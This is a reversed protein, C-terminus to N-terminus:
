CVTLHCYGYSFRASEPIMGLIRHGKQLRGSHYLEELMLFFSASAVNGVSPLNVFWKEVPISYGGKALAEMIKDRFFMSSLHPLFWDVSSVDLARRDAIEQLFDLGLETINEGLYRADQKISFISRSLWDQESFSAWGCLDGKDDREAGAYMCAKHQHAYSALEIWDIALSLGDARPSPELLVAGAGDSLMWRLFDKEFALIPKRELQAILEAEQEFYANRMWPSFRESAVCVANRKEGTLVSLWGYKMAQIGTCCSGAFSVTEANRGGLEGHVMVGHSPMIQEPSATGASILDIADPSLGALECLSRIALAAMGVNTHTPLGARDLAYYRQKIGNSKLILSRAISKKGNILGLYEEMEENGIPANPLFKSLQTIYVQQKM